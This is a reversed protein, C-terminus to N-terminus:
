IPVCFAKRKENKPTDSPEAMSFVTDEQGKSNLRFNEKDM